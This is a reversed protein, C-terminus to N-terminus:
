VRLGSNPLLRAAARSPSAAGKMSTEARDVVSDVDNPEGASLNGLWYGLKNLEDNPDHGARDATEDKALDQAVVAHGVGGLDHCGGAGGHGAFLGCM